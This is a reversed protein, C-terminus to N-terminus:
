FSAGNEQGILLLVPVCGIMVREDVNEREERRSLTNVELNM